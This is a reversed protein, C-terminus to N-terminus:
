ARKLECEVANNQRGRFSLSTCNLTCALQELMPRHCCMVGDKLTMANLDDIRVVAHLKPLACGIGEILKYRDIEMLFNLAGASIRKRHIPERTCVRLLTRSSSIPRACM